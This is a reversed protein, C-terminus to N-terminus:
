DALHADTPIDPVFGFELNQVPPVPEKERLDPNVANDPLDYPSTCERFLETIRYEDHAYNLRCQCIEHIEALAQIPTHCFATHRTVKKTQLNTVQAQYTHNASM